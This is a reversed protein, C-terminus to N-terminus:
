GGQWQAQGNPCFIAGLPLDMTDLRMIPRAKPKPPITAGMTPLSASMNEMGVTRKPNLKRGKKVMGMIAMTFSGGKPSHSEDQESLLFWRSAIGAVWPRSSANPQLSSCCCQGGGAELRM